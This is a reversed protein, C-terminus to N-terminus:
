LIRVIGEESKVGWYTCLKADAIKHHESLAQLGEQIHRRGMKIMDYGELVTGYFNAWAQIIDNCRALEQRLSSNESTLEIIRESETPMHNKTTRLYAPHLRATATTIGQSSAHYDFATIEPPVSTHNM